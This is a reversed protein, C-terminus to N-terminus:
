FKFLAYQGVVGLFWDAGKSTVGYGFAPGIGFRKEARESVQYTRLSTTETYPNYNTIEVFPKSKGLGLFGQKERGIVASYKNTVSLSFKTSDVAFTNNPLSDLKIGFAATIWRNTITDTIFRDFLNKIPIPEKKTEYVTDFKTVGELLTVSNGVEKLYRTNKEVLEQLEKILSDQTQIALFTKTSQTELVEIKARNFGDKDKWTELESALAQNLQVQEEKKQMQNYGWYAFGGVLAILVIIAVTKIQETKM